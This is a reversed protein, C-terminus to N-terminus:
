GQRRECYMSQMGCLNAKTRDFETRSVLTSTQKCLAQNIRFMEMLSDVLALMEVM